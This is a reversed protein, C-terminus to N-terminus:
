SSVSRSEIVGGRAVRRRNGAPFGSPRTTAVRRPRYRRPPRPGPHHPQGPPQRRRSPAVRGPDRDTDVDVVARHAAFAFATHCNGQGNEDLEDTPRHHYEVTRDFMAEGVALVVDERYEGMSDVIDTGEIVFRLPDIGLRAGVHNFVDERVARCAADVAGGSM